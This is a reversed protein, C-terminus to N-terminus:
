SSKNNANEEAMNEYALDNPEWLEIKQGDPDMIWGFKGYEYEEMEGIVEVGEERLVELLKELDHVRYNIMFEKEAPDL